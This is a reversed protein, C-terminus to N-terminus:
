RVHYRRTARGNHICPIHSCAHEAHCLNSTRPFTVDKTAAEDLQTVDEGIESGQGTRFCLIQFDRESGGHREGDRRFGPRSDAPGRARHRQFCNAQHISTKAYRRGLSFFLETRCKTGESGGKGLGYRRTQRYEAADPGRWGFHLRDALIVELTQALVPTSTCSIRTPPSVM